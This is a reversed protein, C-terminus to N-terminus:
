YTWVAPRRWDGSPHGTDCHLFKRSIGVGVIRNIYSAETRAFVLRMLAMQREEGTPMVIDAAFGASHAGPKTKLKEVPHLPCRIGSSISLPFQAQRRIDDLALMLKEDIKATVQEDTRFSCGGAGCKCAFESPRFYKAYWDTM